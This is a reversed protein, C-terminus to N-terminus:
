HPAPVPPAAIPPKKFLPVNAKQKSKFAKDTPKVGM